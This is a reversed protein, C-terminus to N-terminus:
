FPLETIRFDKLDCPSETLAESAAVLTFHLGRYFPGLVTRSLCLCSKLQIVEELGPQVSVTDNMPM